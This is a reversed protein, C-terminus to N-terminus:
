QTGYHVLYHDIISSEDFDTRTMRKGQARMREMLEHPDMWLVEASYEYDTPALKREAADYETCAVLFYLTLKEIDGGERPIHASMPGLYRVITGSAGYEAKMGRALADELSENDKLTIRMFFYIDELMEGTDGMRVQAGHQVCVKGDRVLLAGVSLHHPQAEKFSYKSM